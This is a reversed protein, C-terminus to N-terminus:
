EAFRAPTQVWLEQILLRTDKKIKNVLETEKTWENMHPRKYM